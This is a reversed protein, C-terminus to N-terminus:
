HHTARQRLYAVLQWIQKETLHPGFVPMVSGRSFFPEVSKGRSIRWYLYAPDQVTYSQNLFDPAPPTFEAARPNRGESLAGHCERCHRIFLRAGLRSAEPDALLQQPVEIKPMQTLSKECGAVFWTSLLLFLLLVRSM